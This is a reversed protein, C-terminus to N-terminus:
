HLVCYLLGLCVIAPITWWVGVITWDALLLTAAELTLFVLILYRWSTRGMITHAPWRLKVGACAAFLAAYALVFEFRPEVIRRLVAGVFVAAVVAGALLLFDRFGRTM